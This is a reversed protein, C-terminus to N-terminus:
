RRSSLRKLELMESDRVSDKHKLEAILKQMEDIDVPYEVPYHSTDHEM